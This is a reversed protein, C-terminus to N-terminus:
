ISAIGSKQFDRKHTIFICDLFLLKGELNLGDVSGKM